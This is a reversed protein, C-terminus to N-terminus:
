ENVKKRYEDFVQAPSEGDFQDICSTELGEVLGNINEFSRSAIFKEGESYEELFRSYHAEIESLESRLKCIEDKRLDVYPEDNYQTSLWLLANSAYASIIKVDPKSSEDLLLEMFIDRTETMNQILAQYHKENVQIDAPESCGALLVAM